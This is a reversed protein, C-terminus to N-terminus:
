LSANFQDEIDQLEKDINSFDTEKLDKEIDNTEDSISQTQLQRIEQEFTTPSPEKTKKVKRAASIVAISLVIVVFGALIIFFNKKSIIQM